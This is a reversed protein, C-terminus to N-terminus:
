CTIAIFRCVCKIRVKRSARLVSINSILVLMTPIFFGVIMLVLNYFRGLGDSTSWDPACSFIINIFNEKESM